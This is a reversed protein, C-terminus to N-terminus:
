LQERLGDLLSELRQRDTADVTTGPARATVAEWDILDSLLVKTVMVPQKLYAAIEAVSRPVRCLELALAHEPDLRAPTVQGTARVMSLLDLAATPHTRGNTLAYPRVLQGADDDLWPEDQPVPMSM